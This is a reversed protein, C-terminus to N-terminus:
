WSSDVRRNHSIMVNRIYTHKVNSLDMGNHDNYTTTTDVIFTNTMDSIYM